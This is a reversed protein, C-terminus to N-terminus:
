NEVIRWRLIKGDFLVGQACNISNRKGETLAKLLPTFGAVNLALM